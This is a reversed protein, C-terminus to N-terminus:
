IQTRLAELIAARELRPLGALKARWRNVKRTIRCRDHFDSGLFRYDHLETPEPYNMWVVETAPGGRTQATFEVRRWGALMTDYLESAYGSIMVMCPLKLLLRLLWEHEEAGMMEHRYM